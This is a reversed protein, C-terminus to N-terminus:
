AGVTVGRTKPDVLNFGDFEMTSVNPLSRLLLSAIPLADIGDKVQAFWSTMDGERVYLKVQKEILEDLGDYRPWPVLNGGYARRVSISRVLARHKPSTWLLLTLPRLQKFEERKLAITTYLHSTAIRNVDRSVLCLALLSSRQEVFDFIRDILEEPLRNLNSSM